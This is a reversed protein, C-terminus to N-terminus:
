HGSESESKMMDRSKERKHGFCEAVANVRDFEPGITDDLNIRGKLSECDCVLEM